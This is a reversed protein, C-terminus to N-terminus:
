AAWVKAGVRITGVEDLRAYYGRAGDALEALAGRMEDSVDDPDTGLCFRTFEVCPQAPALGSLLLRGGAATEVLLDNPPATGAADKDPWGDLLLSEGATGDTLHPGYRERLAIYHAQTLVSVGNTLRVNRTDPHDACHVDVVPGDPTQGVAGRPGLELADVEILPAPDYVRAARPGPKLRSRQVQLRVITARTTM